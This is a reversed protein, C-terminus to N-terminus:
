DNTAIYDILDRITRLEIAMVEPPIAQGFEEVVLAGLATASMSDIAGVDLLDDDLSAELDDLQFIDNERCLPLLRRQVEDSEM